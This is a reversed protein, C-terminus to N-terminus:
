IRVQILTYSGAPLAKDATELWCTGASQQPGPDTVKPKEMFQIMKKQSSTDIKKEAQRRIYEIKGHSPHHLNLHQYFM